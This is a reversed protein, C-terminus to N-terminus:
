SDIRLLARAAELEDFHCDEIATLTRQLMARLAANERRLRDRETVARAVADALNAVQLNIRKDAAVNAAVAAELDDMVTDPQSTPM